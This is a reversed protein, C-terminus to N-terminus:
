ARCAKVVELQLKAGDPSVREVIIKMGVDEFVEELEAQDVSHAEHGKRRRTEEAFLLGGSRLVRFVEEAYRRKGRIFELTFVDVAVDFVGEKFPLRACDGLVLDFTEDSVDTLGRHLAVRSVDLGVTRYGLCSLYACHRGEGCGVDLIRRGSPLVGSETLREAVGKVFEEPETGWMFHKGSGYACRYERDWSKPMLHGEAQSM